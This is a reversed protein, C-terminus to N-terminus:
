ATLFKLDNSLDRTGVCVLQKVADVPVTRIKTLRDHILEGVITTPSYTNGVNNQLVIIPDGDLFIRGRLMVAYEPLTLDTLGISLRLKEQIEEQIKENTIKCIVEPHDVETEQLQELLVLSDRELGYYRSIFVHTPNKKRINSTMAALLLRGDGYDKCVYAPRLGGQVSGIYQGFDHWIVHNEYM